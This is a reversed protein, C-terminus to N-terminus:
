ADARLRFFWSLLSADTFVFRNTAINHAEANAAPLADACGAGKLWAPAVM